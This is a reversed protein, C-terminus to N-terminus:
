YDELEEIQAKLNEVEDADLEPDLRDLDDHLETLRSEVMDSVFLNYAIPDLEKLIYSRSFYVGGIRVDGPENLMDDVMDLIEDRM